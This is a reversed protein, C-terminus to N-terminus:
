RPLLTTKPSNQSSIKSSKVPMQPTVSSDFHSHFDPTPSSAAEPETTRDATSFVMVVARFDSLTLVQSENVTSKHRQENDQKGNNVTTVNKFKKEFGSSLRM